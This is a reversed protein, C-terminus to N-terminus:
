HQACWVKHRGLLGGALAADDARLAVDIRQARDKIEQESAPWRELAIRGVLRHGPDQVIVRCGRAGEVATHRAVQLGDAELAQFFLRTAAVARRLLQSVVEATKQAIFRNQRPGNSAGLFQPAEATPM